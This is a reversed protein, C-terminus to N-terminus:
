GVSGGDPFRVELRIVRRGFRHADVSWAGPGLLALALVSGASAFLFPTLERQAIFLATVLGAVLLLASARTGFGTVLALILVASATAGLWALAPVSWIRAFTPYAVAACSFRLLLLAVGTVGDPYRSILKPV